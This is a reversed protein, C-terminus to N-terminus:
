LYEYEELEEELCAIQSQIHGIELDLQEATPKAIEANGDFNKLFEFSTRLKELQKMTISHQHENKIMIFGKFGPSYDRKSERQAITIPNLKVM